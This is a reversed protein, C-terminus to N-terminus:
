LHVVGAGHLDLEDRRGTLIRSIEGAEAEADERRQRRRAVLDDVGVIHHAREVELPVHFVDIQARDADVALGRPAAIFDRAGVALTADLDHQAANV